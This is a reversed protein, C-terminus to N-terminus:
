CGSCHSDGCFRDGDDALFDFSFPTRFATFLCQQGERRSVGAKPIISQFAAFGMRLGIERFIRGVGVSVIRFTNAAGSLSAPLLLFFLKRFFEIPLRLFDAFKAVKSLFM